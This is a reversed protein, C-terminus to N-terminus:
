RSEPTKSKKGEEENTEGSASLNEEEEQVKEPEEEVKDPQSGNEHNDKETEKKSEFSKTSHVNSFFDCRKRKRRENTKIKPARFLKAQGAWVLRAM